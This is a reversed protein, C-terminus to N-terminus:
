LHTRIGSIVSIINLNNNYNNNFNNNIINNENEEINDIEINNNINNNTFLKLEMNKLRSIEQTLKNYKNKVHYHKSKNYFILYYANYKNM